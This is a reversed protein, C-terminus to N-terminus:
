DHRVRHSGMSPLGGPEGMGPIKWALVNSHTAMAKEELWDMRFSILGSHKSSLSINFSFSWYKPWRIRLVSENSFARISPFISPPLLLPCCLILHNSPMVSEIVHAQTLEPFQHHVPFGPRSCDMPDCLTPCSQTVSSFQVSLFIIFLLWVQSDLALDCGSGSSAPLSWHLPGSGTATFLLTQTSPQSSKYNVKM